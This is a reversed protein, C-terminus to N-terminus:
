DDASKGVNRNELEDLVLELFREQVWARDDSSFRLLHTDDDGVDIEVIIMITRLSAQDGYLDDIKDILKGSLQALENLDSM